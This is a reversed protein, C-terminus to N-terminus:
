TVDREPVPANLRDIARDTTPLEARVRFRGGAVPGVQITGRAAAARERMGLLGFGSGPRGSGAAAIRNTIDVRLTDVTYELELVADGDGYRHANTLAEQVIRYAALNVVAPLPRPEGHQRHRVAFGMAGLGTLLEHLREMGPAPETSRVDDPDRLVSVVSKMEELVTDAAARIHGLVPWVKDPEDRLVHGAAGAHVSIVAIHHAVVDHLERAIRLRENMVQRRAEEERSMEAQRARETVEAIYARRMRVSDGAAAGGFVITFTTFQDTTWWDDLYTVSGSIMLGGWMLMAYSWPRRRPSSLAASYALMGAAIFMGDPPRALATALMFVATGALLASVPYWRSTLILAACAVALLLMPGRAPAPGLYLLLAAGIAAPMVDGLLGRYRDLHRPRWQSIAAYMTVVTTRRATGM